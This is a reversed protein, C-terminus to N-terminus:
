LDDRIPWESRRKIRHEDMQFPAGDSRKEWHPSPYFFPKGFECRGAMTWRIDCADRYDIDYSTKIFRFNKTGRMQTNVAAFELARDLRDVIETSALKKPSPEERPAVVESIEVATPAVIENTPAIIEVRAPKVLRGAMDAVIEGGVMPAVVSGVGFLKMLSRRNM